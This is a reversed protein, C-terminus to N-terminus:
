SIVVVKALLMFLIQAIYITPFLHNNPENILSIEGGEEWHEMNEAVIPKLFPIAPKLDHYPNAVNKKKQFIKM